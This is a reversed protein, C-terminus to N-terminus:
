EEKEDYYELAYVFREALKKRGDVNLSINDLLYQDANTENITGYINDVFSIGQPATERELLLAYNSLKHSVEPDKIYCYLDSSVYEGEENIVYAYTPSM